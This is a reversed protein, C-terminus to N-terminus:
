GHCVRQLTHLIYTYSTGAGPCNTTNAVCVPPVTFNKIWSEIISGGVATDILGFNIDSMGHNDSLMQATYFCAASFSDLLDINTSNTLQWAGGKKGPPLIYSMNADLVGGKNSTIFRINSYKGLKTINDYTYNRSFTFHLELQM